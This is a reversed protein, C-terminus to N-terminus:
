PRVEMPPVPVRTPTCRARTRVFRQTPVVFAVVCSSSRSPSADVSGLSRFAPARRQAILPDDPDEDSLVDRAAGHTSATAPTVRSAATSAAPRSQPATVDCPKPCKACIRLGESYSSVPHREGM